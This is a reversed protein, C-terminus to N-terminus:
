IQGHEIFVSERMKERIPLLNQASAIPVEAPVLTQISVTLKGAEPLFEVGSTATANIPDQTTAASM